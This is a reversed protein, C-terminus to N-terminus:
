DQRKASLINVMYFYRANRQHLISKPVTLITDKRISYESYRSVKCHWQSTPHESTIPLCWLSSSKYIIFKYSLLVIKFTNFHHDQIRSSLIDVIGLCRAINNIYLQLEMPQLNQECLTQEYGSSNGSQSLHYFPKNCAVKSMSSNTQPLNTAIAHKYKPKNSYGADVQPM